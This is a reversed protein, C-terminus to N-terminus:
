FSKKRRAGGGRLHREQQDFEFLEWMLERRMTRLEFVVHVSLRQWQVTRIISVADAAASGVLKLCTKALRM